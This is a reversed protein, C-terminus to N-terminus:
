QVHWFPLRGDPSGAIGDSNQNSPLRLTWKAGAEIVGPIATITVERAPAPQPFNRQQAVGPAFGLASALLLRTATPMNSNYRKAAGRRHASTSPRVEVDPLAASKLCRLCVKRPLPAQGGLVSGM